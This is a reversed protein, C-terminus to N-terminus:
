MSGVYLRAPARLNALAGVPPAMRRRVMPLILSIVLPISLEEDIMKRFRKDYMWVKIMMSTKVEDYKDVGMRQEKESGTGDPLDGQTLCAPSWHERTANDFHVNRAYAKDSCGFNCVNGCDAADEGAACPFDLARGGSVAWECKGEVAPVGNEFENCWNDNTLGRRACQSSGATYDLARAQVEASFCGSYGACGLKCNRCLPSDCFTKGGAVAEGPTSSLLCLACEDCHEACVAAARSACRVTTALAGVVESSCSAAAVPWPVDPSSAALVYPTYASAPDAGACDDTDSGLPCPQGAACKLWTAEGAAADAADAARKLCDWPEDCVGDNPTPCFTAVAAGGVTATYQCRLAAPVAYHDLSFPDLSFHQDRDALLEDMSRNALPDYNAAAADRCGWGACDLADTGSRCTGRWEDCVGNGFLGSGQFCPGAQGQLATDNYRQTLDIANDGTSFTRGAIEQHFPFFVFALIWLYSVTGFAEFPYMYMVKIREYDVLGKPNQLASLKEALAKFGEAYAGGILAGELIGLIILIIGRPVRHEFNHIDGWPDESIGEFCTPIPLTFLRAYFHRHKSEDHVYDRWITDYFWSGCMPTNALMTEWVMLLISVISQVLIAFVVVVGGIIVKVTNDAGPEYFPNPIPVEKVGSSSWSNSLRTALRDWTGLFWPCWVAPILLGVIGLTCLYSKWWGGISGMIISGIFCFLGIGLLSAAASSLFAFFFAFRVGYQSEIETLFAEPVGFGTEAVHRVEEQTDNAKSSMRDLATAAMESKFSHHRQHEHVKQKRRRCSRCKSAKAAVGGSGAERALVMDDGQAESAERALDVDDDHAAREAQSPLLPPPWSFDDLHLLEAAAREDDFLADWHPWDRQLRPWDAAEFGLCEAATRQQASMEEWRMDMAHQTACRRCCVANKLATLRGRPSIKVAWRTYHSEVWENNHMPFIAVMRPDSVPNADLHELSGPKDEPGALECGGRVRNRSLIMGTLQIRDAETAVLVEELGHKASKTAAQEDAAKNVKKFKLGDGTQKWRRVVLDRFEQLFKEEPCRLLIVVKHKSTESRQVLQLELGARHITECTQVVFDKFSMKRLAARYPDEAADAEPIDEIEAPQLIIAYTWYLHHKLIAGRESVYRDVPQRALMMAVRDWHVKQTAVEAARAKLEATGVGLVEAQQLDEQVGALEAAFDVQLKKVAREDLLQKSNWVAVSPQDQSSSRQLPKSRAPQRFAAVRKDPTMVPMAPGDTAAPSWRVPLEPQAETAPETAPGLGELDIGGPEAAEAEPPVGVEGGGSPDLLAEAEGAPAGELAGPPLEGEAGPALLRGSGAELFGKLVPM